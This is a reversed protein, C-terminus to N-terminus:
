GKGGYYGLRYVDITFASAPNTSVMIDLREGPRVSTRSCYGEIWLSRYRTAPDVAARTLQWETTGPKENEARILDSRAPPRRSSAGSLAGACGTAALAGLGAGAPAKLFDRRKM